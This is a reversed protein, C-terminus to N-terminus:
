GAQVVSSLDCQFGTKYYVGKAICDPHAAEIQELYRMLQNDHESTFTKDEVIIKYLQNGTSITLLVDVHGVQREVDVLRIDQESLDPVFLRLLQKACKHLIPDTCDDFAFSCIWCIFADQSLESTAYYFLNNKM